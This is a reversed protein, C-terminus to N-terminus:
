TRRYRTRSTTKTAVSLNSPTSKSYFWKYIRYCGYVCMTTAATITVTRKIITKWNYQNQGEDNSIQVNKLRRFHPNTAIFFLDDFLQPFDCSDNNSNLWTQAYQYLGIAELHQGIDGM